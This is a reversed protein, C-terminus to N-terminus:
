FFSSSALPICNRRSEGGNRIDSLRIFVGDYQGINDNPQEEIHFTQERSRETIGDDNPSFPQAQVIGINKRQITHEENQIISFIRETHNNIPEHEILSPNSNDEM